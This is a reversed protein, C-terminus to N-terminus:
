ELRLGHQQWVVILYLIFAILPSLSTHISNGRSQESTAMAAKNSKFSDNSISSASTEIEIEGRNSGVFLSFAFDEELSLDSSLLLQWPQQTARYVSTEIERRNWGVFPSFAFDEELGLDSSL